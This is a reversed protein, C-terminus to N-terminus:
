EAFGLFEKLGEAKELDDRDVYFPGPPVLELYKDLFEEWPLKFFAPPIFFTRSAGASRNGAQVYTSFGGLQHKRIQYIELGWDGSCRRSAEVKFNETVPNEDEIWSHHHGIVTQIFKEADCNLVERDIQGDKWDFYTVYQYEGNEQEIAYSWEKRFMEKKAWPYLEKMRELAKDIYANMDYGYPFKENM